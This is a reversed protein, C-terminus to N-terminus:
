GNSAKHQKYLQEAQEHHLLWLEYLVDGGKAELETVLDQMYDPWNM